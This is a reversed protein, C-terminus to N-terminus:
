LFTFLDGLFETCFLIGEQPLGLLLVGALQLEELLPM